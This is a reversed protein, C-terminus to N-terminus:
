IKFSDILDTSASSTTLFRSSGDNGCTVMVKAKMGRVKSYRLLIRSATEISSEDKLNRLLGMPGPIGSLNLMIDKKKKLAEIRQNEEEKRGTIFWSGDPLIFQRGVQALLLSNVDLEDGFHEYLRKFRISLIPDALVCGGAPAPYDKIGYRAALSIQDKRGRGTIGLLKSRDVMGSEEMRTPKLRLASLPRLLLGEAGSDREVIRMADRRQSMPRQGLVEGSAIFDAKYGAMLALAQQIMLIKCDICPNLHRGFGHAPKKLMALYPESIDVVKMEIGYKEFVEISAKSEHGKLNYGFFPTIFKLAITRIGQEQLIKCALISDLGGSFLVLCTSKHGQM